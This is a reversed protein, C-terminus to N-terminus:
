RKEYIIRRIIENKKNFRNKSEIKIINLGESLEITTKFNGEKDLYVEEKNVTLYATAETKGLIEFSGETITIDTPPQNVELKPATVLFSIERWFYIAVLILFLIFVFVVIRKPTILLPKIRKIPRIAKDKLELKTKKM